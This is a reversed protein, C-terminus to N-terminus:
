AKKKIKKREELNTESGSEDRLTESYTSPSRGLLNTKPLSLEKYFIENKM